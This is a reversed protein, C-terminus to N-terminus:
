FSVWHWVPVVSYTITIDEGPALPFSGSTLGTVVGDVAVATVAGGSLYVTVPGNTTNTAAVTSAPVAPAVDVRAFATNVITPSAVSTLTRARNIIDNPDASSRGSAAAAILVGWQVLNPTASANADLYTQIARARNKIDNADTEDSSLAAALQAVLGNSFSM